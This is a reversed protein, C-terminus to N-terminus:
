HGKVVSESVPYILVAVLIVLYFIRKHTHLNILGQNQIFVNNQATYIWRNEESLVLKRKSVTAPCCSAHMKKLTLFQNAGARHYLLNQM